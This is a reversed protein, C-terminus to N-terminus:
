IFRHVISFVLRNLYDKIRSSNLFIMEFLYKNKLVRKNSLYKFLQIKKLELSNLHLQKELKGIQTQTNVDVSTTSIEYILLYYIKKLFKRHRDTKIITLMKEIYTIFGAIQRTKKEETAQETQSHIVYFSDVKTFPFYQYNFSDCLLARAHLEVDQLRPFSEDFGKISVLFSRKWIPSMTQWPYSGSLFGKLAGLDLKPNELMKKVRIELCHPALFDDTDLFIVFMGTSINLGENRCINAGKKASQRACVSFRADINIFDEVVKITHDESHDDVIICEYDNYTQNKISNLTTLITNQSNYSPIIISVKTEIDLIKNSLNM